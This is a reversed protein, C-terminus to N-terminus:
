GTTVAVRGTPQGPGTTWSHGTWLQNGVSVDTVQFGTAHAVFWGALARAAQPAPVGALTISLNATGGDIEILKLGGLEAQASGLVLSLAAPAGATGALAKRAPADATSAQAGDVCSLELAATGGLARALTTSQGEWKAYADPFGSYQVAQAAKTLTMKQWGSVDVLADYFKGAAYVPDMIQAVTGWGQSPRQQFLGVSDRDGSSLNRLTSEQFATAIAIIRAREPLGRALGVANITSAHQLQVATLYVPVPVADGSGTTATGVVPVTCEATAAPAHGSSLARVAFIGGVVLAAVLALGALTWIIPKRVDTM